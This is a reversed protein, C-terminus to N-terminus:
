LKKFLIYESFVDNIFVIWDISDDNSPLALVCNTSDANSDLIGICGVVGKLADTTAFNSFFVSSVLMGGPWSL